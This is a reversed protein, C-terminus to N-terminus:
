ASVVSLQLLSNVSLLLPANLDLQFRQQLLRLMKFAEIKTPVDRQTIMGSLVNVLEQNAELSLHVPTKRLEETKIEDGERKRFAITGKGEPVFDQGFSAIKSVSNLFTKHSATPLTSLHRRFLSFVLNPLGHFIEIRNAPTYRVGQAPGPLEIRRVEDFFLSKGLPLGSSTSSSSSSSSSSSPLRSTAEGINSVPLFFLLSEPSSLRVRDRFTAEQDFLEGLVAEIGTSHLHNSSRVLLAFLLIPLVSVVFTKPEDGQEKALMGFLWKCVPDEADGSEIWQFYEELASFVSARAM